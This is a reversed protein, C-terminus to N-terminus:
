FAVRERSIAFFAYSVVYFVLTAATIIQLDATLSMLPRGILVTRRLIEFGYAWPLVSSISKSVGQLLERDIVLGSFAFLFLVLFFEIIVM